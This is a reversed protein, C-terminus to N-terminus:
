RGVEKEAVFRPVPLSGAQSQVAASDWADGPHHYAFGIGMAAPSRSVCVQYVYRGYGDPIAQMIPTKHHKKVIRKLKAM